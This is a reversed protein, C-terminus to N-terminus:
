AKKEGIFFFFFVPCGQRSSSCGQDEFWTLEQLVAAFFKALCVDTFLDVPPLSGSDAKWDSKCFTALAKIKVAYQRAAEAMPTPNTGLVEDIDVDDETVVMKSRGAVVPNSM